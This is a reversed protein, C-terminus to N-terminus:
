EAFKVYFVVNDEDDTQMGFKGYYGASGYSRGCDVEETVNPDDGYTWQYFNYCKNIDNKNKLTFLFSTQDDSLLIDNISYGLRTATYKCKKFAMLIDNSSTEDFFEALQTPSTDSKKCVNECDELDEWWTNKFDAM